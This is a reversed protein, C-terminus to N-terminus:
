LWMHQYQSFGNESHPTMSSTNTFTRTHAHTRPCASPTEQTHLSSVVKLSFHFSLCPSPLPQRTKHRPDPLMPLANRSGSSGWQMEEVWGAEYTCACMSVSMCVCVNVLRYRLSVIFVIQSLASQALHKRHGSCSSRWCFYMRRSCCQCASAATCLTYTHRPLSIQSQWNASMLKEENSHTLTHTLSFLQTWTCSPWGKNM